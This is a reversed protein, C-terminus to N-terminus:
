STIIPPSCARPLPQGDHLHEVVAWAIALGDFTATGRGIEDLIVLLAATAQNCSRPPRSWRSWSPRAAARSITPRASAASCGTSSASIPPARGARLLRDAGPRRDAREPAPLDIQRGHQPRHGAVARQATRALDCDNAVFRAAGAASSRRRSWRIAAAGRDRLRREDDVRPRAGAATRPSSPWRRRRCRAARARRRRPSRRPARADGRRGARRLHAARAALAQDGAQPSRAAGARGARRHHLAGRRGADPSPHLRRTRAM